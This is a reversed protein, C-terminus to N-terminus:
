HKGREGLAHREILPANISTKPLAPPPAHRKVHLDYLDVHPTSFLCLVCDYRYVDRGELTRGKYWDLRAQM